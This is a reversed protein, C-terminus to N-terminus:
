RLWAAGQTRGLLGGQAAEAESCGLLAALKAPSISSYARGVLELQRGRLREALAAVLVQAQPSWGFQPPLPSPSTFSPLAPCTLPCRHAARRPRGAAPLPLVRPAPM